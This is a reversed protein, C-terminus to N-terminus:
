IVWGIIVNIFNVSIFRFNVFMIGISNLVVVFILVLGVCLMVM